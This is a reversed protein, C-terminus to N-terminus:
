ELNMKKLLAKYRPDSRINDYIPDKIDTMWSDREELGKALWEFGKDREELAFYLNALVTPRIYRKKSANLRDNLIKLAEEKKGMKAYAIGIWNSSNITQFEVLAEEYMSKGLYVQGLFFHATADNPFMELVSELTEIAQDYHRANFLMYGVSAQTRAMLPDLSRALKIETIAEEHRAMRTLFSSYMHHATAYGPNLEIAQKYEREASEWDWDLSKAAALSTHAEALTNDLELAKLAAERAKPYGEKHPIYGNYVLIYYSDAIGTYALAYSPDEEIALEFFEIAKKVNASGRKNWLSRGKLYLTFAKLNETPHKILEGKKGGLLQIKLGDVIALIIEDQISFVDNLDKNWQDSWVLSGDNTNILQATIRVTDEARQVSGRLFSRVGLKEGIEQFSKGEEAMLSSSTIAPVRLEKIQTLANILDEAMGYCFYEQDKQPSLDVFPLVAVSPKDMQELPTETKSWPHWLLLGIIVVALIALVPILFKKLRFQVTIERSSLPKREPVIRETTPIGAEINELESRVDEATQCRKEKDKELCRLIVRNLDDPIQTNLEQPAKPIEGKHKMGITFPTDGEFPVRGTVMEYLIIGLSYIDSRQDVEKGEVQETSMYEPTGIMVGAGTIGKTELSRAIGFDM